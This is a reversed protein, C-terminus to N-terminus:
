SIECLVAGPGLRPCSAKIHKARDNQWGKRLGDGTGLTATM